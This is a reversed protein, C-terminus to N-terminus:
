LIQIISCFLLQWMLLLLWCLLIFHCRGVHLLTELAKLLHMITLWLNESVQGVSEAERFSIEQGLRVLKALLYFPALLCQM